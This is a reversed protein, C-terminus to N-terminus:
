HNATRYTDIERSITSVYSEVDDIVYKGHDGSTVYLTAPRGVKHALRITDESESISISSDGRAHVAIIPTTSAPILTEINISLLYSALRFQPIMARGTCMGNVLVVADMRRDICSCMAAFCGLSYGLAITPVDNDNFGKLRRIMVYDQLREFATTADEWISQVSPDITTDSEGLGRLQACVITSDALWPTMCPARLMSRVSVKLGPFVLMHRRVIGSPPTYTLVRCGRCMEEVCSASLGDDIAPGRMNSVYAKRYLAYCVWSVISLIVHTTMMTPSVLRIKACTHSGGRCRSLVYNAVIGTAVIMPIPATTCVFLGDKM